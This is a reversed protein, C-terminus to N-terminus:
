KVPPHEPPRRPDPGTSLRRDPQAVLLGHVVPGLSGARRLPPPTGQALAVLTTLLDGKGFPPKGEVAAYLTAGLPFMDSAPTVREGFFQEPSVYAPSGVITDIAARTADRTSCAIGFDVLVVRGGDCLQVNGPKVDRHVIGAGHIARLADVLRLGIRVVDAVPLPGDAALRDALTPGSLMEM